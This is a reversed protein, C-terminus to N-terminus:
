RHPYKKNIYYNATWKCNWPSKQIWLAPHLLPFGILEPLLRPKKRNEKGTFAWKVLSSCLKETCWFCSPLKMESIVALSHCTFHNRAIHCREKGPPASEERCVNRHWGDRPLALAPPPVWCCSVQPHSQPHFSCLQQPHFSHGSYAAFGVRQPLGCCEASGVCLYLLLTSRTNGQLWLLSFSGAWVPYSNGRKQLMEAQLSQERPSQHIHHLSTM